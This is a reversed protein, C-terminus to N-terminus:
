KFRAIGLENRDIVGKCLRRLYFPLNGGPVIALRPIIATQPRSNLTELLTDASRLEMDLLIIAEVRRNNLSSAKRLGELADYARESVDGESKARGALQGYLWDDATIILRIM